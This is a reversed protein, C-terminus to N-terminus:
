LNHKFTFIAGNKFEVTDVCECIDGKYNKAQSFSVVENTSNLNNYLNHFIQNIKLNVTQKLEDQYTSSGEEEVRKITNKLPSTM